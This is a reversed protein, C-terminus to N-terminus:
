RDGDGGIKRKKKRLTLLPELNRTCREEEREVGWTPLSLIENGLWTKIEGLLGRAKNGEPAVTMRAQHSHDRENETGDILRPRRLPEDASPGGFTEVHLSEPSQRCEMVCTRPGDALAEFVARHLSFAFNESDVV